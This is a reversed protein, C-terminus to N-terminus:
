SFVGGGFGGLVGGLVGGGWGGGLFFFRLFGGVSGLGGWGRLGGGLRM